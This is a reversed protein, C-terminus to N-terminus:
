STTGRGISYNLIEAGVGIQDPPIEETRVIRALCYIRCSTSLTIEAPLEIVCEFSQGNVLKESSELCFYIGRNSLDRTIGVMRQGNLSVSIPASVRYRNCERRETKATTDEKM